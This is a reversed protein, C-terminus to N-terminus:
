LDVRSTLTVIRPAGVGYAGSVASSFYRKNLL